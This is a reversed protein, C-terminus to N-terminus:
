TLSSPPKVRISSSTTMRIMPMREAMAMGAKMPWFAFALSAEALSSARVASVVASDTAM